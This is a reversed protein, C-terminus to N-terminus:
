KYAYDDTPSFFFTVLDGSHWVASDRSRVRKSSEVPAGYKEEMKQSFINQWGIKEPLKSMACLIKKEKDSLM